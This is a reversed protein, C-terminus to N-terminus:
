QDIFIIHQLKNLFLNTVDSLILSDIKGQEVVYAYFFSFSDQVTTIPGLSNLDLNISNDFLTLNIALAIFYKGVVIKCPILTKIILKYIM